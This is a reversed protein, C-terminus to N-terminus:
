LMVIVPVLPVSTWLVIMGTLTIANGSKVMMREVGFRVSTLVATAEVIVTFAILPKLPVTVRVSVIGVLREHLGTKGALRM